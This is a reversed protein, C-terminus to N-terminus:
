SPTLCGELMKPMAQLERKDLEHLAQVEEREQGPAERDRARGEGHRSRSQRGSACGVGALRDEQGVEEFLRDWWGEPSKGNDPYM